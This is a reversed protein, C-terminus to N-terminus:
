AKLPVIKKRLINEMIYWIEETPYREPATTNKTQKPVGKRESLRM